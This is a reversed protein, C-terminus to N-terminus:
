FHIGCADEYVKVLFKELMDFGAQIYERDEKERRRSVTALLMGLRKKLDKLKLVVEVGEKIKKSENTEAMLVDYMSQGEEMLQIAEERARSYGLRYDMEEFPNKYYTSGDLHNRKKYPEWAWKPDLYEESDMFELYDDANDFSGDFANFVARLVPGGINWKRCLAKFKGDHQQHPSLKVDRFPEHKEFMRDYRKRLGMIKKLRVQVTEGYLAEHLKMFAECRQRIEREKESTPLNDDIDELFKHKDMLKTIQTSFTRALENLRPASEAPVVEALKDEPLFTIYATDETPCSLYVGFHDDIFANLLDNADDWDKFYPNGM